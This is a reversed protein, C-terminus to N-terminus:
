GAPAPAAPGSVPGDPEGGAPGGSSPEPLRLPVFTYSGHRHVVVEANPDLPRHVEVLRGAVPAVLIGGPGLQDVLAAPLEAAEASVLIRDYPAESPRGLQGADAPEIRVGPRAHAALAARGELVLEPVIELGLVTGDPATLRGLLATTWGSGSGVDLVRQGPRVDLLSLLHAVTTPQSNTQDHGIPLPRDLDAFRQQAAPLFDRRPVATMAERVRPAVDLRPV